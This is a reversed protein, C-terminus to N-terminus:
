HQHSQLSGTLSTVYLDFGGVTVAWEDARLGSKVAVLDGLRQGLVVRRRAYGEGSVAVFVYPVTNIEVIASRRVVPLEENARLMIQVEVFEGIRFRSNNDLRYSITATLREADFVLAETVREAGYESMAYASADGPRRLWLEEIDELSELDFMSVEVQLLVTEDSVIHAVPSGLEVQHGHPTLLETIVGDQTAVIPLTRESAGKKEELRGLAADYTAQAKNVTERSAILDQGQLLRTGVLEELRKQEAELGEREIRVRALASDVETLRRGPLLGDTVLKRVREREKRAKREDVLAKKIMASAALVEKAQPLGRGALREVRELEEAASELGIRTLTLDEELNSLHETPVESRLVALHQGETVRSGIGKGRFVESWQFYGAAPSLIARSKRPDASITAAVTFTTGIRRTVVLEQSFPIDWQQEKTFSLDDDSSDDAPHPEVPVEEDSRWVARDGHGQYELELTYPGPQSPSPAPFEFIGRRSPSSAVTENRVIGAQFFRVTLSGQTAPHNDRLRTVHATYVSEQGAALPEVEVFLEHGSDFLTLSLNGEGHGHGHGEAEEEDHGEHGGHAAHEEPAASTMPSSPRECGIALLVLVPVIRFAQRKM